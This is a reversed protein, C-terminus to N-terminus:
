GSNSARTSLTLTASPAMNMSLCHIICGVLFFSLFLPVSTMIMVNNEYWQQGQTKLILCHQLSRRAMSCPAASAAANSLMAQYQLRLSLLPVFFVDYDSSYAPEEKMRQPPSHRESNTLSYPAMPSVPMWVHPEVAETALFVCSKNSASVRTQRGHAALARPHDATLPRPALKSLFNQTRTYQM